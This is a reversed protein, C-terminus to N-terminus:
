NNLASALPITIPPAQMPSDDISNIDVILLTRSSTGGDRGITTWPTVDINCTSDLEIRDLAYRYKEVTVKLQKKAQFM